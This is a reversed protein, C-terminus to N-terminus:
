PNIEISETLFDTNRRASGMMCVNYFHFRVRVTQNAPRDRRLVMIQSVNPFIFTKGPVVKTCQPYQEDANEYVSYSLMMPKWEGTPLLIDPIERILPEASIFIAHDSTNHLTAEFKVFFVDERMGSAGNDPSPTTKVGQVTVLYKPANQGHLVSLGILASILVLVNGM